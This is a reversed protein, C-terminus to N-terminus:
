APWGSRPPEIEIDHLTASLAAREARAIDLDSPMDCDARPGDWAKEFMEFPRPASLSSSSADKVPYKKCIHMLWTSKM